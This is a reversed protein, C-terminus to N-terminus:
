GGPKSYDNATIHPYRGQPRGEFTRQPQVYCAPMGPRAPRPGGANNCDFSPAIGNLQWLPGNDLENNYSNGRNTPLRTTFIATAEAGGPDVQRLYHGHSLPTGPVPSSAGLANIGASLFDSANAQNLELWRLIPNLEGLFPGLSGLTPELGHLLETTAPLGTRAATYAPGLGLFLRRLNPALARAQAVTPPLQDLAPRLRVALPDADTAFARLRTLTRRSQVLFGPLARFTRALAQDQHATASFTTNFGTITRRLAGADASLAHFDTASDRILSELKGRDADLVGLASDAHGALGPLTGLAANLDTGHSGLAQGLSRQWTRVDARTRPDFLQLVDEITQVEGVQRDPLRAGEPLLPAGRSGRTMAVYTEGGVTKTRLIVRADRHIPAAAGDLEITALTRRGDPSVRKAVVHGISVGAERVDAQVGLQVAKPFAAEFRYDKPKLPIVGGFSVWLFLLLGFCSLAFVVMTAVRGFSPAVKVM